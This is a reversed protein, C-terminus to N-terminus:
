INNVKYALYMFGIIALIQSLFGTILITYANIYMALACIGSCIMLNKYVETLHLKTKDSIDKM